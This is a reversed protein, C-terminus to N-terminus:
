ASYKSIWFSSAALRASRSSANTWSVSFRSTGTSFSDPPMVGKIIRADIFREDRRDKVDFPTVETALTVGMRDNSLDIWNNTARVTPHCAKSNPNEKGYEVDGFPVEYTLRSDDLHFPYVANVQIKKEGDWDLVTELDIKPLNAYLSITQTRKSHLISGEIKLTTRVPGSETVTVTAPKEGMRWWNKTFEEAEDVGLNEMAILENGQYTDTKLLERQNQKDFLSILGGTKPDIAISYFRNEVKDAAIKLENQTKNKGPAVYYAAYGLAPVEAEFIVQLRSVSGDGHYAQAKFQAPIAQGQANVLAFERSGQRPIYVIHDVVDQRPWALSNFVLLPTGTEKVAIGAALNTLADNNIDTALRHAARARALKVADSIIGNTGGWNHEHVWLRDKWVTEIARAPYDFGSDILENVASFKEASTVLHEAQRSLMFADNEVSQTGDWWAPMEGQLTQLTGQGNQLSKKIAETYQEISTLEVRPYGYLKNWMNANVGVRADPISCDTGDAMMIVPPLNWRANHEAQTNVFHQFAKSATLFNDTRLIHGASYDAPCSTVMIRSGDPAQWNFINPGVYGTVNLKNEPRYLVKWIIFHDIGSKALIQPMQLTHGPEDVNWAMRADYNFIDLLWHKGFYINRILGEGGLLLESPGFYFGGCELIGNKLLEQVEAFREPHRLLFEQLVFVDEESFNFEPLDNLISISQAIAQCNLNTCVEPTDPWSLDAHSHPVIFVQLDAFQHSKGRPQSITFSRKGKATAIQLQATLDSGASKIDAKSELVLWASQGPPISPVTFQAARRNKDASVKLTVPGSPQTGTNYAQTSFVDLVSHDDVKRAVPSVAPDLTYIQDDIALLNEIRSYLWWNGGMQDVKALLLNDGKHLVVQLQDADPGSARVQSHYYIEKGNLWLKLRDNSGTKLLAPIERDCRIVAAAYAVNNQNPSLYKVFDLKGSADATAPKWAVSKEAVSSSSHKLGAVPKIAAEGGAEQLFDTVISNGQDMPFPGCILWDTIFANSQYKTISQASLTLATILLLGLLIATFSNKM